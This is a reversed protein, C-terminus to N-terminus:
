DVQKDSKIDIKWGTLKAALRANQGERGIALSLQFDPVVVTASQEEENIDVSLVKAPSLSETIFEVIDTSYKVIDIKEEGLSELVAAVRAGKQGVCSGVPDVKPNDSYVAIKSRSGAERSVSKIEVTGDGIEPVEREFLRKILGPHTRSVLIQLGKTTNKVELVYVPIKDGTKFTEGAIMERRPMLTETSGIQLLLGRREIKEVTAIIIDNEKEIFEAYANGREAERIYQVMMQKANQAAIRGFDRPTTEIDLVDGIKANRDYTLAEDLSIEFDYDEAEEVVTRKEHVTIKGDDDIEVFVNEGAGYYKKYATILPAKLAELLDEKKINKEKEILELATILENAM